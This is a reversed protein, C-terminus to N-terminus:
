QGIEDGGLTRATVVIEELGVQEQAAVAPVMLGNSFM